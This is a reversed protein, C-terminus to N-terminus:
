EQPGTSEDKLFVVIARKVVRSVSVGQRLAIRTLRDHYRSPVWASVSSRPEKVRPRGVKRHQPIADDTM